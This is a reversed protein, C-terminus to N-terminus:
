TSYTHKMKLNSRFLAMMMPDFIYKTVPPKMEKLFFFFRMEKCGSNCECGFSLFYFYFDENQLSM